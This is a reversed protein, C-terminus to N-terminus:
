SRTTEIQVFLESSMVYSVLFSFIFFTSCFFLCSILLSLISQKFHCGYLFRVKLILGTLYM